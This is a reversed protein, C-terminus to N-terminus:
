PFEGILVVWGTTGREADATQRHRTWRVRFPRLISRRRAASQIGMPSALRKTGPGTLGALTGAESLRGVGKLGTEQQSSGDGIRILIGERVITGECGQETHELIVGIGVELKEGGM